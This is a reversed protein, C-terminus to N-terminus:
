HLKDSLVVFECILVGLTRVLADVVQDAVVALEDSRLLTGHLRYYDLSLSLSLIPKFGIM